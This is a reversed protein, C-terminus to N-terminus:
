KVGIKKKRRVVLVNMIIILAVLMIDFLTVIRPAYLLSEVRVRTVVFPVAVLFFLLIGVLVLITVSRKTRAAVLRMVLHVVGGLLGGTIGAIIQFTVTSLRTTVMGVIFDLLPSPHVIILFYLINLLSIILGYLWGREGVLIGIIFAAVMLHLEIAFFHIIQFSAFFHLMIRALVVAGIVYVFHRAFAWVKRAQMFLYGEGKKEMKKYWLIGRFDLV